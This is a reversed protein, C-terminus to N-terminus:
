RKRQIDASVKIALRGEHTLATNGGASSVLNKNQLEKLGIKGSIIDEPIVERLLKSNNVLNVGKNEYEGLAHLMKLEISSLELPIDPVIPSGTLHQMGESLPLINKSEALDQELKDIKSKSLALEELLERNRNTLETNASSSLRLEQQMRSLEQISTKRLEKAEDQTLPTEDEIQQQIKKIKIHQWHWYHYAWKAPFPYLLIFLASTALPFILGYLYPVYAGSYFADWRVLKEDLTLNSFFIAIPRFNWAIWSIIFAGTLPSRAREYLQAKIDKTLDNFM